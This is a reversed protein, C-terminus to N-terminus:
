CSQPTEESPSYCNLVSALTHLTPLTPYLTSIELAFLFCCIQLEPFSLCNRCHVKKQKIGLFYKRIFSHPMLFFFHQSYASYNCYCTVHWSIQTRM